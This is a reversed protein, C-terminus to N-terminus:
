REPERKEQLTKALQDLLADGGLRLDPQTTAGVFHWRGDQGISFEIGLLATSALEALKLCGTRLGPSALPGVVQDGLVILTTVPTGPPVLRARVSSPDSLDRSSQQYHPVPLGARAALQVWESVHRWQGSLGWPTPRNIMPEPLASLWSLFFSGLEQHVYERDWPHILLLSELPVSTLRNLVGWLDADCIHRGDPLDAELTVGEVGLRHEWRVGAVLSEATVLELPELRRNKLGQFAWLASADNSSCLVLWM